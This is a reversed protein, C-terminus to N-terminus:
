KKKTAQLQINKVEFGTVEIIQTAEFRDSDLQLLYKGNELETSFRFQGGPTTMTTDIIKEQNILLLKQAALPWYGEAVVLTGEITTYVALSIPLSNIRPVVRSEGRIFARQPRM